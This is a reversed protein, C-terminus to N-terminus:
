AWEIDASLSELHLRVSVCILLDNKLVSISWTTATCTFIHFLMVRTKSKRLLLLVSYLITYSLDLKSSDQDVAAGVENDRQAFKVATVAASHDAITHTPVYNEGFINVCRGRSASALMEGTPSYDMDLVDGDHTPIFALRDFTVLDYVSFLFYFTAPLICHFCFRLQKINSIEAASLRTLMCIICCSSNENRCILRTIKCNWSPPLAFSSVLASVLGGKSCKLLSIAYRGIRFSPVVFCVRAEHCAESSDAQKNRSEYKHSSEFKCM